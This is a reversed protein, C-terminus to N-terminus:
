GRTCPLCLVWPLESRVPVWDCCALCKCGCRFSDANLQKNIIEELAYLLCCILFPASLLCLNASWKRKQLAFNKRALANAQTSFSARLRCGLVCSFM